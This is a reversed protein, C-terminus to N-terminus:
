GDETKRVVKPIMANLKDATIDEGSGWTPYSDAM